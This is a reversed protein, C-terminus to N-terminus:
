TYINKLNDVFLLNRVYANALSLQQRKFVSKKSM